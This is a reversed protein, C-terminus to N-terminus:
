SWEPESVELPNQGGAGGRRGGAATVLCL